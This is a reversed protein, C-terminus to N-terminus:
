SISCCASPRTRHLHFRASTARISPGLTPSSIPAATQLCSFDNVFRVVLRRNGVDSFEFTPDTSQSNPNCHFEVVAEIDDYEGGGLSFPTGDSYFIVGLTLNQDSETHWEYGYINSVYRCPHGAVCQLVNPHIGSVYCNDPLESSNVPEFLKV